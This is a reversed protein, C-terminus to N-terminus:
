LAEVDHKDFHRLVIDLRLHISGSSATIHKQRQDAASSFLVTTTKLRPVGGVFYAALEQSPSGLPRWTPVSIEHTGPRSPVHVFAYGEVELRGADDM